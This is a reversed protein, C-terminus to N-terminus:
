CVSAWDLTARLTGHREPTDRERSALSLRETLRAHLARPSFVATRAAALELALPLGDLQQCIADMASLEDQDLALDRRVARARAVFLERAHALELPPVDIRQEGAIHLPERSTVLVDVGPAAALLESVIM